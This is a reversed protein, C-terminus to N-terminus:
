IFNQKTLGESLWTTDLYKCVYKQKSMRFYRPIEVVADELAESMLQNTFQWDVHPYMLIRGSPTYTCCM